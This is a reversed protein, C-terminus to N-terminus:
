MTCPSAGEKIKDILTRLAKRQKHARRSPTRALADLLEESRAMLELAGCIVRADVSRRVTAIRFGDIGFARESYVEFDEAYARRVLWPGQTPVLTHPKVEAMDTM